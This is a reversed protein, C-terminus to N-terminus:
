KYWWKGLYKKATSSVYKTVTTPEQVTEAYPDDQGYDGDVFHFQNNSNSSGGPNKWNYSYNVSQASFNIVFLPLVQSASFLVFEQGDPSM